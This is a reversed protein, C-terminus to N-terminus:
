TDLRVLGRRLALIVAQTRDSVELKNLINNVHFKVTRETISLTAGIENNSKGIAMLRLVETERETLASNNVREAMKLAVQPPIYKRGQHVVRIADLLEEATVDKLLYGRAGAQLGRYIDEDGDYTTLVIVCATPFEARIQTIAEVGDLLPMRLDMLTIQPQHQQYLAVAQQGNAAQAVVDMDVEDKIIAAFGERVLAHDEALLIRIPSAQSM